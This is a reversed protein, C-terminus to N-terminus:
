LSVTITQYIQNVALTKSTAIRLTKFPIEPTPYVLNM